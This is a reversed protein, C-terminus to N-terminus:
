SKYQKFIFKYVLYGIGFPLTILMVTALIYAQREEATFERNCGTCADAYESFLIFFVVLYALKNKM